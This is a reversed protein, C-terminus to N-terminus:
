QPSWFLEAVELPCDSSEPLMFGVPHVTANFPLIPLTIIDPPKLDM